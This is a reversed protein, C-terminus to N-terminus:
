ANTCRDGATDAVAVIALFARALNFRQGTRRWNQVHASAASVENVPFVADAEGLLLSRFGNFIRAVDGVLRSM